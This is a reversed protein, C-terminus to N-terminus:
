GVPTALNGISGAPIVLAAAEVTIRVSQNQLVLPEKVPAIGFAQALNAAHMLAEQFLAVRADNHANRPAPNATAPAQQGNDGSM